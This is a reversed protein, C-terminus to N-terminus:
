PFPLGIWIELTRFMRVLPAGLAGMAVVVGLSVAVLLVVYEITVSGRDDSLASTQPASM